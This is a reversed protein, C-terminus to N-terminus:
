FKDYYTHDSVVLGNEIKFVTCIPLSFKQGEITGTSVFEVVVMNGEAILTKVEDHIDPVSSYFGTMGEKGIKIGEISPDMMEVDQAYLAEMREWDHANFAEFVEKAVQAAADGPEPAAQRAMCSNLVVAAMLIIKKM